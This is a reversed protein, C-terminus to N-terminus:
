ETISITIERGCTKTKPLRIELVGDALRSTVSEPDIPWKITLNFAFNGYGRELCLFRMPREEEPLLKGTPTARDKRGEIKLVNDLLKIRLHDLTVGPVELRVLVVDEEEYVDVPPTWVNPANPGAALSRLEDVRVLMRRLRDRLQEPLEDPFPHILRSTM